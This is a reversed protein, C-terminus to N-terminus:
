RESADESQVRSQWGRPSAGVWTLCTAVPVRAQTLLFANKDENKVFQKM